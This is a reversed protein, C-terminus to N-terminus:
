FIIPVIGGDDTFCMLLGELWSSPLFNICNGSEQPKVMRQITVMIAAESAIFIIVEIKM